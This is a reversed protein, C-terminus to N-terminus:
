TALTMRLDLALFEDVLEDDTPEAKAPDGPEEAKAPPPASKSEEDDKVQSLVGDILDRAQKLEGENKASLVRGSKAAAARAKPSVVGTIEVERPEGLTVDGDDAVTYTFEYTTIGDSTEVTAVVTEDFTAEVWTWAYKDSDRAWSNVASELRGRREEFSGAVGFWGKKGERVEFSKVALLRTDDNVALPTPGAEHIELELLENAGNQKKERLVDYAFSFQVLVGEQFGEYVDLAADKRLFLQGKLWLGEDREEIELAKGVLFKPDSYNHSYYIPLYQNSDAKTKWRDISKSFAGKVVRDGVRDVNGFVSVIAEFVGDGEGEVAKVRAPFVSKVRRSKGGKEDEEAYLAAQQDEAAAETEHCGVVEDTDDQVVAWPKAESCREPDNVVSWPM